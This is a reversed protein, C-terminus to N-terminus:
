EESFFTNFSRAIPEWFFLASCERALCQVNPMILDQAQAETIKPMRDKGDCARLIRRAARMKQRDTADPLLGEATKWAVMSRMKALSWISPFERNPRRYSM